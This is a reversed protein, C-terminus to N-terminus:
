WAGTAGRGLSGGRELDLKLAAKVYREGIPMMPGSLRNTMSMSLTTSQLHSIESKLNFSLHLGSSRSRSDLIAFRFDLISFRCDREYKQRRTLGDFFKCQM